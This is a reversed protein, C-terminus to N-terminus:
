LMEVLEARVIGPATTPVHHGVDPVVRLSAHPLLKLAAEAVAVPVEADDAGWLLRVPCDIGPLLQEYTENVTRVLVDRMVGTAVRYDSSGYRRRARELGEDGILFSFRKLMRYGFPPRRGRGTRLLPTGVLLLGSVLGEAALHLAVRGGFSHGVVLPPAVFSSLVPAVINAYGEAGLPSSPAPTAGFGPLDVAVAPIGDLVATFDSHDRGWGHLALVGPTGDGYGEGFLGAFTTLAM